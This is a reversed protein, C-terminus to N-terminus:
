MHAISVYSNPLHNMIVLELLFGDRVDIGELQYNENAAFPQLFVHLQGDVLEDDRLVFTGKSYPTLQGIRIHNSYRTAYVTMINWSQNDINVTAYNRPTSQSVNHCALSCVLGMVLLLRKLM